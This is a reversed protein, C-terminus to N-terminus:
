LQRLYWWTLGSVHGCGVLAAAADSLEQWLATWVHGLASMQQIRLRVDCSLRCGRVLAVGSRLGMYSRRRRVAV